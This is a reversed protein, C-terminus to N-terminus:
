VWYIQNNFKHSVWSAYIAILFHVLFALGKKASGEGDAFVLDFTAIHALGALEPVNFPKCEM